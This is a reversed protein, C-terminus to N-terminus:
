ARRRCWPTAAKPSSRWHLRPAVRRRDHREHGPWGVPAHRPAGPRTIAAPRESTAPRASRPRRRHPAEAEAMAERGEAVAERVVAARRQRRSPGPAGHASRGRATGVVTTPSGTAAGPPERAERWACTATRRERRRGGRRRHVLEDAQVDAIKRGARSRAAPPTMSRDAPRGRPPPGAAQRGPRHGAVRSSRRGSPWTASGPRASDVTASIAEATDLLDDM